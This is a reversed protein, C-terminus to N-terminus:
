RRSWMAGAARRRSPRPSARRRRRRDRGRGAPRCSRSGRARSCRPAAFWPEAQVVAGAAEGLCRRQVNGQDQRQRARHCEAVHVEIAVEVGHDGVFALGVARREAAVIGLVSQVQVVAGAPEAVPRRCMGRRQAVRRLCHREAIDVAVAREVRHEAVARVLRLLVPQPAVASEAREDVHGRRVQRLVRIGSQRQREAVDVAVVVEFKQDAVAAAARVPVPQVPVIAAAREGIDGRRRQGVVALGGDCDRQAVEVAVAVEVRDDDVRVRRRAPDVAVVAAAANASVPAATCCASPGFATAIPSM